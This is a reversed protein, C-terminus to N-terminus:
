YHTIWESITKGDKLFFFVLLPVLVLYLIVEIVGPITALSFSFVFQGIKAAQEHLYLVVHALPNGPFFKPYRQFLETIWKQSKTFAGPLEHVMGALQKWLLPLLGFLALLFLGLFIIYVLSVSLWHPFRWRELWRVPSTLLYAIVISVIVPLLYKGFLEILVVGIVLTFFLALAEPDSFNRKFWNSVAQLIPNNYSM